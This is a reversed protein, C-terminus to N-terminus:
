PLSNQTQGSGIIPSGREPEEMRKTERMLPIGAEDRITQFLISKAQEESIKSKLLIVGGTAIIKDHDYSLWFGILPKDNSPLRKPFRWTITESHDKSETMVILNDDETKIYGTYIMGDSLVQNVRFPHRIGRRIKWQATYFVPQDNKYTWHYEVWDDILYKPKPRHLLKFYLAKWLPGLTLGIIAGVFPGALWKFTDM